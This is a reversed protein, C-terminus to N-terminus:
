YPMSPRPLQLCVQLAPLLNEYQDNLDFEQLLEDRPFSGLALSAVILYNLIM